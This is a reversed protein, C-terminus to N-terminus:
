QLTYNLKKVLKNTLITKVSLKDHNFKPASFEIGISKPIIRKAHLTLQATANYTEGLIKEIIRLIIGICDTQHILNIPADPNELNERGALFRIIEEGILVGL